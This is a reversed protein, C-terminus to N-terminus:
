SFTDSIASATVGTGPPTPDIVVAIRKFCTTTFASLCAQHLGWFLSVLGPHGFSQGDAVLTGHCLEAATTRIGSSAIELLCLCFIFPYFSEDRRVAFDQRDVIAVLRKVVAVLHMGAELFESVSMDDATGIFCAGM